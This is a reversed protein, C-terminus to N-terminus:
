RQPGHDLITLKFTNPMMVNNGVIMSDILNSAIDSADAEELTDKNRFIGEPYQLIYQYRNTRAIRQLQEKEQLKQDNNPTSSKPEQQDEQNVVKQDSTKLKPELQNLTEKVQWLLEGIRNINRLLQPTIRNNIYEVTMGETRNEIQRLLNTLQDM